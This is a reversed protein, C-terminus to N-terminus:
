IDDLKWLRVVLGKEVRAWDVGDRMWTHTRAHTHQWISYTCALPVSDQRDAMKWMVRTDQIPQGGSRRVELAVGLRWIGHM